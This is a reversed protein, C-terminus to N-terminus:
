ATIRIIYQRRLLRLNNLYPALAQRVSLGSAALAEAGKHQAECPRLRTHQAPRM